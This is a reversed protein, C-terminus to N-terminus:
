VLPVSHFQSRLFLPNHITNRHRKLCQNMLNMLLKFKCMPRNVLFDTDMYIGGHHYLLAARLLDSKASAYPLMFYEHPLDPILKEVNTDNVM